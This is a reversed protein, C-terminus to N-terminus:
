LLENTGTVASSFCTYLFRQFSLMECHFSSLVVVEAGTSPALSLRPLLLIYSPLSFRRTEKLKEEEMEKERRLKSFIIFEETVRGAADFTVLLM